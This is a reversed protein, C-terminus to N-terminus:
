LPTRFSFGGVQEPLDFISNVYPANTPVTGFQMTISHDDTRVAEGDIIRPRFRVQNRFINPVYFQLEGPADSDALEIEKPRGDFSIDFVLRFYDAEEESRSAPILSNFRVIRPEALYAKWDAYASGGADAVEWAEVYRRTAAREYSFRMLLDGYEVLAAILRNRSFVDPHKKMLKIVRQHMKFSRRSFPGGLYANSKGLLLPLVAPVDPGRKGQLEIMASRYLSLAGTYDGISRLWRGLRDAAGIAEPSLDGYAERHLKYATRHLNEAVLLNGRQQEGHAKAYLIPIQDESHSGDARQAVQQARSLADAGAEPDGVSQLALGLFFYPAILQRDYLGEAGSLIRVARELDAVAAKRDGGLFRTVGLKALARGHNASDPGFLSETQRVDAELLDISALTDSGLIGYDAELWDEVIQMSPIREDDGWTVGAFSLLVLFVILRAMM